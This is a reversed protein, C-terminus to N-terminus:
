FRCSITLGVGGGRAPGASVALRGSGLLSARGPLPAERWREPAVGAGVLAGTAAAPVGLVAFLTVCGSGSCLDDGDGAANLLTFAGALTAGVIAGIGAAKRRARGGSVELKTIRDLPMVLSDDGESRRLTLQSSSLALLTGQVRKSRDGSRTEIRIRSGEVLAPPEGAFVVTNGALSLLAAICAVRAGGGLRAVPASASENTM